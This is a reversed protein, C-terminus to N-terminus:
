IRTSTLIFEINQTPASLGIIDYSIQINIENSDEFSEALVSQLKIRPEFNELLIEIEEKLSDPVEPFNQEFLSKEVSSGILNNFFREGIRTRVLNMVSKKIADENNITIVDNTVPNRTFSLSIDKFARSIQLAM